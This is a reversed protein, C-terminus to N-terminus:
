LNEKEKIFDLVTFFDFYYNKNLFVYQDNTKDIIAWAKTNVYKLLVLKYNKFELKNCLPILQFPKYKKESFIIENGYHLFKEPINYYHTGLIEVEKVYKLLTKATIM